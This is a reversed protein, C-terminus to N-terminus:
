YIIENYKNNHEKMMKITSNKNLFYIEYFVSM